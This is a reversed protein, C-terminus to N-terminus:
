AIQSLRPGSCMSASSRLHSAIRGVRERGLVLGGAVAILQRDQLRLERQGLHEVPGDRPPDEELLNQMVVEVDGRGSWILRIKLRRMMRLPRLLVGPRNRVRTMVLPTMGDRCM